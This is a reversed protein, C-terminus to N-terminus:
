IIKKYKNCVNNFVELLNVTIAVKKELLVITM